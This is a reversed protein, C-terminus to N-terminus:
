DRALRWSTTLKSLLGPEAFAIRKCLLYSIVMACLSGVAAALVPFARWFGDALLLASYVLYNLSFGLLQVGSYLLSQSLAPRIRGAAFTWNRHLLWTCLMALGMSVLRALYPNWGEEHVLLALIGIDVAFGLSGVLGFRLMDGRLLKM